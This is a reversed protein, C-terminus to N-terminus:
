RLLGPFLGGGSSAVLRSRSVEGIGFGVTLDSVLSFSSRTSRGTNSRSGFSLLLGLLLLLIVVYAGMEEGQWRM